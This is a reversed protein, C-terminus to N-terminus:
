VWNSIHGKNTASDWTFSFIFFLSIETYVIRHVFFMNTSSLSSTLPLLASAGAVTEGMQSIEYSRMENQGSRLRIDSREVKVNNCCENEVM